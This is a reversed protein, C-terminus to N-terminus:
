GSLTLTKNIRIKKTIRELIQTTSINPTYLLQVIMEKPLESCDNLKQQLEQENASSVVYLDFNNKKMFDLTIIKPGDNIVHDVWRCAKVVESREETNLIPQRKLARVREDPVVCVTLHSGLQKAQAFFRV